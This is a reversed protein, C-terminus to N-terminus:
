INESKIFYVNQSASYVIEYRGAPFIEYDVSASVYKRSNGNGTMSLKYGDTSDTPLLVLLDDRFSINLFKPNDMLSLVKQSFSLKLYLRGNTKKYYVVVDELIPETAKKKKKIPIVGTLDVDCCKEFKM